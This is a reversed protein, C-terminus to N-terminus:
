IGFPAFMPHLFKSVSGRINCFKYYNQTVLFLIQSVFLIAKSYFMEIGEYYFLSPVSSIISIREIFSYHFRGSTNDSLSV